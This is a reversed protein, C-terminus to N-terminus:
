RDEGRAGSRAGRAARAVQARHPWAAARGRAGGSSRTRAYPWRVLMDREEADRVLVGDSGLEVLVPRRASTVGDFFIGTGATAM